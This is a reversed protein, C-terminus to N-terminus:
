KFYNFNIVLRIKKNTHTTGTHETNVPFSVLRNAKSKIQKKLKPFVTYGNNDNIYYVSTTAGKVEEKFDTHLKLPVVKNYM